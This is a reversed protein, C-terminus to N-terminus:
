LYSLWRSRRRQKVGEFWRALPYLLLLVVLWALYVGPLSFGWGSESLRRMTPEMLFTLVPYGLGVGVLLQLAHALYLHGVYSFLSTRGFTLLVRRVPGRVFELASFLLLSIGLTALVYDPSPPYKSLNLFSMATQVPTPREAWPVPDGFGNAVRLLVFAVLFALAIRRLLRARRATDQTAFVSGLGYGIAMVGLWPVFPYTVLLTAGRGGVRVLTLYRVLAAFGEAGATMAAALPSLLVIAAGIALVTRPPLRCLLAMCVMSAGTAWIVQLFLVPLGFEFGFDVVTMELLILILGRTFLFRSLAAPNKGRAAQLFISVGALFVFTPACLHTVWRTAFLAPNSLLPDTASFRFADVHFFDRVHDLVMIVIVLGRLMDIAEIRPSRLQTHAASQPVNDTAESVQLMALAYAKGVCAPLRRAYQM